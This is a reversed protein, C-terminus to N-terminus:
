ATSASCWRRPFFYFAISLMADPIAGIGDRVSNPGFVPVMLYTGPGAGWRAFALGMDQRYTPIGWHGAPDFLGVIGVTTNVLFHGTEHGTERFEGQLLLSVARRPYALNYAMRELSERVPHPFVFRWGKAIPMVFWDWIPRNVRLVGRNFGEIRDPLFQVVEFPDGRSHTAQYLEDLPVIAFGTAQQREPERADSPEALATGSRLLVAGVVLWVLMARQASSM